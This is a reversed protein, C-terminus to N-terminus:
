TIRRRLPIPKRLREQINILADKTTIIKDCNLIDYTNVQLPSSISLNPLNRAARRIIDEDEDVLLLPKQVKFGQLIKALEKTKPQTLKLEDLVIFEGNKVKSSLAGKIVLRKIKKPISYSYNRPKPGFIVGGGVWIPSRISGARARGTGKQRWPKRGGGRVEARTRTSATGKRQSSLYNIVASHLIGPRVQVAFVENLLAIKGTTNGEINYTDLEISM